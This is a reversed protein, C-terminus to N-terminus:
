VREEGDPADLNTASVPLARTIATLHGTIARAFQNTTRALREVSSLQLVNNKNHQALHALRRLCDLTELCLRLREEVILIPEGLEQGDCADAESPGHSLAVQDQAPRGEVSHLCNM